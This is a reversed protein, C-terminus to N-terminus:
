GLATGLGLTEFWTGSVVEGAIRETRNNYTLNLPTPYRAAVAAFVNSRDRFDQFMPYSFRSDSATSTVAVLEGAHRGPLERVLVQDAITFVASNAGIGLALSILAISTFIPTRRLNRFAYRFDQLM